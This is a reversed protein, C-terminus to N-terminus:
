RRSPGTARLLSRTVAAASACPLGVTTAVEAGAAAVAACRDRPGARFVAPEGRGARGFREGMARFVATRYRLASAESEWATVLLLARESARGACGGVLVAQDARWGRAAAAAEGGPIWRSLAQRLQHEGLRERSLERCRAPLSSLSAISLLNAEARSPAREPHLIKATNRPPDALAANVARWGGRGYVTEIYALGSGYTFAATERLYATLRTERASEPRGLARLVSVSWGGRGLGAVGLDSTLALTVATADGEVVASAALLEDSRGPRRALLGELDFHQDQLAHTTEHIMAELQEEPELWGALYLCGSAPDYFGSTTKALQEYVGSEYRRPHDIMGLLALMEGEQRIAPPPYQAGVWRRVAKIMEQRGVIRRCQPQRFPLGRVRSVDEAVQRARGSVEAVTGGQASVLRVGALLALLASLCLILSRFRLLGAGVLDGSM